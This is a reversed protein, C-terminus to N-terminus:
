KRIKAKMKKLQVPTLGGAATFANSYYNRFESPWGRTRDSILYDNTTADIAAQREISEIQFEQEISYGQSNRGFSAYGKDQNHRM